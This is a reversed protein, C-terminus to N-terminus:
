IVAAVQFASEVQHKLWEGARHYFADPRCKVLIGHERAEPSGAHIYM